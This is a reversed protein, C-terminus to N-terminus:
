GGPPRVAPIVPFCAFDFVQAHSLVSGIQARRTSALPNTGRPDIRVTDRLARIYWYRGVSQKPKGIPPSVRIERRRSAGDSARARSALRRDLSPTELEAFDLVQLTDDDGVRRVMRPESISGSAQGRDPQHDPLAPIGVVHSPRPLAHLRHPQEPRLAWPCVCCRRRRCLRGSVPQHELDSDEVCRRPGCHAKSLSYRKENLKRFVDDIRM